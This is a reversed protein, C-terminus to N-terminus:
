KLESAVHPYEYGIIIIIILFLLLLLPQLIGVNMKATIFFVELKLM